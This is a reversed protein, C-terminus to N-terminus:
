KGANDAKEMALDFTQKQKPLPHLKYLILKDRDEDDFADFEAVQELSYQTHLDELTGPDVENWAAYWGPQYQHIRMPLDYTGYDDCIAPLHTILTIDDGSISLLLRKGNPHTDIYQTVGEAASLFTYQPHRAWYLGERADFVSGAVVVLMAAWALGRLSRVRSFSELKAVSPLPHRLRLAQVALGVLMALPYAVVQYYRPQMNDHWGIFFIYGGIAMWAAQVLRSRWFGRAFFATAVVLALMLVCLWGSIWVAGHVAYWFAWLWGSVTDPQPWQNSAFLYHYDYLYRPRVFLGYYLLWPVAAAVGTLVARRLSPLLRGDWLMWLVSPMLFIATTKTLIMLCLTLGLLISWVATQAPGEARRLAMALRWGILLFLVLLPELIALRSFAYLFASAALVTVALMASVTATQRSAGWARSEVRVLMYVLVLNAAFAALVLLRVAVLNVGTFHFLVWEMAPLVPLAVSPNFDGHVYWHGLVKHEIAAKGYWGEDTYKAYDMWPSFNPFDARLHVTHMAVLALVAALWLGWGLTKLGNREVRQRETSEYGLGWGKRVCGSICSRRM